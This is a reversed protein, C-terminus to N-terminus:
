CPRRAARIVRSSGASPYETATYDNEKLLEIAQDVEQRSRSIPNPLWSPPKSSHDRFVFVIRGNPKLIRSIEKITHEPKGWFQFCHVAIVADFYQDNWNLNEDTGQRFDVRGSFGRKSLRKIATQLMTASPDVGAVVIDSTNSLLMEALLGTGFGIELYCEKSSPHLAAIAKRYSETNVWEMIKGFIVGALGSPSQALPQKTTM